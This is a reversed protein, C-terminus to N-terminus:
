PHAEHIHFLQDRVSVKELAEAISWGNVASIAMLEGAALSAERLADVPLDYTSFGSRLDAVFGTVTPALSDCSWAATHLRQACSRIADLVQDAAREDASVLSHQRRPPKRKM